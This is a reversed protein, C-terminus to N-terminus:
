LASGFMPRLRRFLRYGATFAFLAFVTAVVWALPHEIRGFYLVDQYVWILSSLPNLYIIPKFLSPVWAPLYVIPLVYVMGTNVLTVIDKMDRFFVGIAALAWAFGTATLVHLAGVFPLLFYTWPLSQDRILTYLAVLGIAVIWIVLHVAVDKVPLVRADFTFQKILNANSSISTAATSLVPSLSLWGGLGSLIYITYDRPLEHTGGIRQQFVVGFVFVLLGMQFLPHGIAWFAGLAQGAYRSAIERRTMALILDRREIIFDVAERLAQAHASLDTFSAFARAGPVAWKISSFFTM